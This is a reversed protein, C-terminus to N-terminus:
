NKKKPIVKKIKILFKKTLLINKSPIDSGIIVKQDFNKILFVIDNFLNTELFHQATYSLDLIINEKFRLREYFGLLQTGGCHMIIVKIKKTLNVLKSIFDLLDYDLIKKDFSTFSCFM